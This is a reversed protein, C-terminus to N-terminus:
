PDDDTEEERTTQRWEIASEVSRLADIRAGVVRWDQREGRYEDGASRQENKIKDRVDALIADREAAVAAAVAEDRGEAVRAITLHADLAVQTSRERTEAHDAREGDLAHQTQTLDDRLRDREATMEALEREVSHRDSAMVDLTARLEIVIRQADKAAQAWGVRDVYHGGDRHIVALLNGHAQTVLTLDARLTDRENSMSAIAAEAVRLRDDLDIVGRALAVADDRTADVANDIVRQAEAPDTITDTM